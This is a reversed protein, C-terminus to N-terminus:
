FRAFARREVHVVDNKRLTVSSQAFELQGSSNSFGVPIHEYSGDPRARVVSVENRGSERDFGGAAAIAQLVSIGPTAPVPGPTKVNGVVFVQPPPEQRSAFNVTVQVDPGFAAVYANRIERRIDDLRRGVVNDIPQIYPLDISQGEFVPVELRNEGTAGSLVGARQQAQVVSVTVAPTIIDNARYRSAAERAIQETTKGAASMGGIVGLSITGDPLVLVEPRALDPHEAVDVRLVDGIDVTYQGGGQASSAAYYTVELVDGTTVVDYFAPLSALQQQVDTPVGDLGTTTSATQQGTSSQCAALLVLSCLSIVATRLSRRPAPAIQADGSKFSAPHLASGEVRKKFARDGPEGTRWIM